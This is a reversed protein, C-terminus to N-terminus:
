SRGDFPFRLMLDVEPLRLLLVDFGGRLLLFIGVIRSIAALVPSEM